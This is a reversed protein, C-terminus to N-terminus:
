KQDELTFNGRFPHTVFLFVDETTNQKFLCTDFFIFLVTFADDAFAIELHL